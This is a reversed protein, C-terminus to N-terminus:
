GVLPYLLVITRSPVVRLQNMIRVSLSLIEINKLGKGKGFLHGGLEFEGALLKAQVKRKSITHRRDRGSVRDM